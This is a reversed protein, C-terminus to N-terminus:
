HVLAKLVVIALGFGVNIGATVLTGVLGRGSRRAIVAGIVFLEVLCMVTAVWLTTSRDWGLAAGVLILSVPPAGVSVLPWEEALEERRETRTLARRVRMQHELLNAYVHALWFVFGTVFLTVGVKGLGASADHGYVQILTLVLILGYVAAAVNTLGFREAWRGSFGIRRRAHDEHETVPRSRVARGRVFM